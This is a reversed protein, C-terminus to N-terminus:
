SIRKAIDIPEELLVAESLDTRLRVIVTTGKGLASQVEISGGHAGVIGRCIALGLGSGKIYPDGVMGRNLAFAEGLKDVAELPMGTGTDSVTIEVWAGDSGSSAVARVQIQGEQTHKQANSLLNLVLRRVAAEDGHMMLEPPHVEGSLAVRQGDVLPRISDMAGMCADALSFTSWNWRATGSNLRAVDLMDNVMQAMREMEDRIGKLFKDHDATEKVETDLLVEAMARVGALPTRLEHGIVGLVQEMGRVAQRLGDRERELEEARKRETIDRVVGVAHWEGKLQMSSLSMEVPFEEGNKRLAALELVRGVANGRGTRYFEAIGKRYAEHFREPALLKHLDKGQVEEASYGFIREASENWLSIRGKSDLIIIADQAASVVKNLRQESERLAEEAQKCKTVDEYIAMVEGSPLKCVVNERWGAIRNDRYFSTPHHEPRGKRWVRQFVEFLGFKKVGPFVKLVSKGV